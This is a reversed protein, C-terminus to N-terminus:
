LRVEIRVRKICILGSSYGLFYLDILNEEEVDFKDIYWCEDLSNDMIQSDFPYITGIYSYDRRSYVDIFYYRNSYVKIMDEIEMGEHIINWGKLWAKGMLAFIYKETIKICNSFFPLVGSAVAYTSPMYNNGRYFKVPPISWGKFRRGFSKIKEGTFVNYACFRNHFSDYFVLISDRIDFKYFMKLYKQWEPLKNSKKPYLIPKGFKNIIEGNDINITFFLCDYAEPTMAAFVGISDNEMQFGNFFTVLRVEKIFSLNKLDFTMLKHKLNVALYLKDDYADSSPVGSKEGPGEGDIAVTDMFGNKIGVAFLPADYGTILITDGIVGSIRPFKGPVDICRKNVFVERYELIKESERTCSLLLFFSLLIIRKM